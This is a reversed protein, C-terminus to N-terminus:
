MEGTSWPSTISTFGLAKTTVRVKESAVSGPGSVSALPRPTGLKRLATVMWGSPLRAQTGDFFSLVSRPLKRSPLASVKSLVTRVM